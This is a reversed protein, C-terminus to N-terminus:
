SKVLLKVAARLEELEKRTEEYLKVWYNVEKYINEESDGMLWNMSVDLIKSMKYLDASPPLYKGTTYRSLVVPSIGLKEALAKGTMTKSKLADKLRSSFASM